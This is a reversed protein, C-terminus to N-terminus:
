QLDPQFLLTHTPFKIYFNGEYIKIGRKVFDKLINM